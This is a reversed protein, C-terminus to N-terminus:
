GESCVTGSLIVGTTPAKQMPWSQVTQAPGRHKLGRRVLLHSFMQTICARGPRYQNPCCGCRCEASSLASRACRGPRSPCAARNSRASTEATARVVPTLGQRGDPGSPSRSDLTTGSIPCTAHVPPRLFMFESEIARPRASTDTDPRDTATTAYEADGDDLPPVLAPLEARMADYTDLAWQRSLRAQAPDYTLAAFARGRRERDDAAQAVWAAVERREQEPDTALRRTLGAREAAVRMGGPLWNEDYGVALSALLGLVAARNATAPDAAIGALFPV